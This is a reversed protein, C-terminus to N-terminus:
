LELQLLEMLVFVCLPLDCCCLGLYICLKEVKGCDRHLRCCPWSQSGTPVCNLSLPFSTAEACFDFLSKSAVLFIPKALPQKM